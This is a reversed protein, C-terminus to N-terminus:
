VASGLSGHSLMNSISLMSTGAAKIISTTNLSRGAALQCWCVSRPAQMGRLETKGELGFQAAASVRKGCTCPSSWAWPVPQYRPPCGLLGRSCGGGWCSVPCRSPRPVAGPFPASPPQCRRPGGPSFPLLLVQPGSHRPPTPALCTM